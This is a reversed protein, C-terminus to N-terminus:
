GGTQRSPCAATHPEVGIRGRIRNDILHIAQFRCCVPELPADHAGLQVAFTGDPLEYLRGKLGSLVLMRGHEAFERARRDAAEREAAEQQTRAMNELRDRFAEKVGESLDLIAETPKRTAPIDDLVMLRDTGYSVGQVRGDRRLRYREMVTGDAAVLATVITYYLNDTALSRNADLMAVLRAGQSLSKGARRTANDLDIREDYVKAPHKM